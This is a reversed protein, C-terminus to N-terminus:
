PRDEMDGTIIADDNPTDLVMGLDKGIAARFHGGTDDIAVGVKEYGVAELAAVEIQGERKSIIRTIKYVSNRGRAILDVFVGVIGVMGRGDQDSSILLYHTTTGNDLAVIDGQTLTTNM